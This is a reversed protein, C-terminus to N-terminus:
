GDRSKEKEEDTGMAIKIAQYENLFFQCVPVKVRRV